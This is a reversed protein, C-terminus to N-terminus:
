PIGITGLDASALKSVHEPHKPPGQRTQLEIFSYVLTFGRTKWLPCGLLICGLCGKLVGSKAIKREPGHHTTFAVRRAIRLGPLNTKSPDFADFRKIAHFAFAGFDGPFSACGFSKPAGKLATRISLTRILAM